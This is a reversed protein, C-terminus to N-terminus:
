ESKRRYEQWQSFWEFTDFRIATKVSKLQFFLDSIPGEFLMTFYLDPLGNSDVDSFIVAHGGLRESIGAQYSINTFSLFDAPANIKKESPSSTFNSFFIIIYLPLIIIILKKVM